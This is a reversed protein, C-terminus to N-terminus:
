QNIDYANLTFVVANQTIETSDSYVDPDGFTVSSFLIIFLFTLIVITKAIKKM